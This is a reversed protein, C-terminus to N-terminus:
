RVTNYIYKSLDLFQGQSFMGDPFFRALTKFTKFFHRKRWLSVVSENGLIPKFNGPSNFHKKSSTRYNVPFNNKFLHAMNKGRVDGHAEELLSWHGGFPKQNQLEDLAM